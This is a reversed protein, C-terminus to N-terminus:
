EVLRSSAVRRRKSRRVEESGFAAEEVKAVEVSFRPGGEVSDLAMLAGGSKSLLAARYRKNVAVTRHGTAVASEVASMGSLYNQTVFLMKFSKASIRAEEMGVNRAAVKAVSTIRKALLVVGKLNPGGLGASVAPRSFFPSSGAEHQGRVAIYALARVLRAQLEGSGEIVARQAKAGTRDTKYVKLSLAVASPPPGIEEGARSRAFDLASQFNWRGKVDVGGIAFRVDEVRLLGADLVMTVREDESLGEWARTGAVASAARRAAPRSNRRGFAATRWSLHYSLMGAVWAMTDDCQEPPLRNFGDLLASSMYMDCGSRIAEETLPACERRMSEEARLRAKVQKSGTDALVHRFVKKHFVGTDVAEGEWGFKLATIHSTV